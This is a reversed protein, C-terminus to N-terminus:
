VYLIDYHGPRYLLTIAPFDPSQKGAEGPAPAPAAPAEGDAEQPFHMTQPGGGGRGRGDLYVIDVRIGLYECLGAIQVHDCEVGMPEVERRCFDSMDTCGDELFPLFKDANRKLSGAIALPILPM